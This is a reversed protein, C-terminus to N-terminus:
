DGLLEEAAARAAPAAGPNTAGQGGGPEGALVAAAPVVVGVERSKLFRFYRYLAYGVAPVALLYM